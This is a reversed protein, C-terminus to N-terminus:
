DNENEKVPGILLYKDFWNFVEQPQYGFRRKFNQVAIAEDHPLSYMVYKESRTRDIEATM